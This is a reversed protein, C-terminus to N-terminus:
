KGDGTMKQIEILGVADGSIGLREGAIDLTAQFPANMGSSSFVVPTDLPVKAGNVQLDILTIRPAFSQGTFPADAIADTWKNDADNHFFGYQPGSSVWAVAKGTSIAEDRAAQYLLALRQAEDRLEARDDKAFNVSVLALTIGIIVLVVLIEVLTFGSNNLRHPIFSRRSVFSSNRSRASTCRFWAIWLSTTNSM